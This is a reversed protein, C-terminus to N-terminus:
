GVDGLNVLDGFKYAIIFLRDGDGGMVSTGLTLVYNVPDYKFQNPVYPTADYPSQQPYNLAMARSELNVRGGSVYTTYSSSDIDEGTIVDQLSFTTSSLVTIKFRLNNIEDMGRATPMDSGLDTIRIIQNSQYGHATSTTVVCPDAKSVASILKQFSAVGGSTDAVTFGNTQPNLFNYATASGNDLIVQMQYAEAADTEDRFWWSVPLGGATNTWDTLNNVCVADAQWDLQLDYAAAGSILRYAKSM